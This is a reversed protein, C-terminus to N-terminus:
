IMKIFCPQLLRPPVEPNSQRPEDTNRTSEAAEVASRGASRDQSLAQDSFVFLSFLLTAITSAFKM